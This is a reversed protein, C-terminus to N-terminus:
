TASQLGPLWAALTQAIVKLSVPKSLYGDMGAELCHERDEAMVHATMAIIPVAHNLVASERSRIQRTAELGDLGPM